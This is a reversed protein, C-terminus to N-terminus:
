FRKLHSRHFIWEPTYLTEGFNLSYWPNLKSDSPNKLIHIQQAPMYSQALLFLKEGTRTNHAMDIVIVAHGPFGGEIFVDGIKMDNVDQVAHLEKSLSHTGSYMFVTNLYRRFNRYSLDNSDQKIWNVSSGNVLPRYGEAWKRFSADDGSTFEFHIADYNSISFFYEARIRILADACQQLNTNGVDIDLVAFHAEQNNKKQGNYLYVPPKGPKLPLHRLWDEFTGPSVEIRQYGEPVLIRNVISESEKYQSIWQYHSTQSIACICFCFLIIFLIKIRM